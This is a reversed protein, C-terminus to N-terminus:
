LLSAKIEKAVTENYSRGIPLLQQQMKIETVNYAKTM